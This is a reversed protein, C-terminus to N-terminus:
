VGAYFQKPVINVSSSQSDETIARALESEYRRELEASLAPNKYDPLTDDALSFSVVILMMVSVIGTLFMFLSIKM